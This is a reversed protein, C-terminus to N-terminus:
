DVRVTARREAAHKVVNTLAEQVIRYATVDVEPPVRRQEGTVTLEVAVGADRVRRVLDDVRAIGPTPAHSDDRGESAPTISSLTARLESLAAASASSIAELAVRAQRPNADAIHLAVDAQMQIAALGHGVIDHVETALRLREEELKRRETEA